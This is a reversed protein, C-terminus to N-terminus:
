QPSKEHIGYVGQTAEFDRERSHSGGDVFARNSYKRGADHEPLSDAAPSPPTAGDAPAVPQGSLSLDAATPSLQKRFGAPRSAPMHMERRPLTGTWPEIESQCGAENHPRPFIHLWTFPPSQLLGSTSVFDFLPNHWNRTISSSVPPPKHSSMYYTIRRIPLHGHAPTKWPDFQRQYKEETRRNDKRIGCLFHQCLAPCLPLPLIVGGGDLCAGLAIALRNTQLRVREMGVVPAAPCM